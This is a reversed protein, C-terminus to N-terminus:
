RSLRVASVKTGRNFKSTPQKSLLCVTPNTYVRANHYPKTYYTIGPFKRRLTSKTQSIPRVDLACRDRYGRGLDHRIDKYPRLSIDHIKSNTIKNEQRISVTPSSPTVYKVPHNSVLTTTHLEYEM